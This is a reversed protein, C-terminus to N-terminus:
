LNQTPRDHPMKYGSESTHVTPGFGLVLRHQNKPVALTSRHQLNQSPPVGRMGTTGAHLDERSQM